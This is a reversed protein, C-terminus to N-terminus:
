PSERAFFATAKKLIDREMRLRRNEQRLRHLEEEQPSRRGHGPFADPGQEDLAHKWKRLSNEAIGLNRAAEAFSYGHETVLRVAEAKYEPTFNRRTRAM